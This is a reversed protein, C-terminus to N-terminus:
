TTRAGDVVQVAVVIGWQHRTGDDDLCEDKLVLLAKVWNHALSVYVSRHEPSRRVWNELFALTHDDGPKAKVQEFIAKAERVLATRDVAM